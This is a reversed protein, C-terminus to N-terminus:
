GPPHRLFSLSSTASVGKGGNSEDVTVVHRKDKLTQRTPPFQSTSAVIELGNSSQSSVSTRLSLQLGSPCNRTAVFLLSPTLVGSNELGRNVTEHFCIYRITRLVAHPGQQSEGTKCRHIQRFYRVPLLCPVGRAGLTGRGEVRKM